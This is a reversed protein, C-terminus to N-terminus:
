SYDVRVRGARNIVLQACYTSAICLQFHGNQLVQGMGDFQLYDDNGFGHYVLQEGSATAPWVRLAQWQGDQWSVLLQGTQWDHGCHTAGACFRVPKELYLAQSRAWRLKATLAQVQNRLRTQYHKSSLNPLAVCAIIAILLIVLLLELLSMGYRWLCLM